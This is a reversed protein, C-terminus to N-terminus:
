KVTVQGVMGLLAHPDCQFYYTGPGFNLAIDSTQGPLQLLDTARPLNSKGANSDPLFNANHVGSVLTFRLVDGANAEFRAPDFRNAGQDDTLMKVEIVKGGPGPTLNTGTAPQQTTQTGGATTDAREGGGGCAAAGLMVLLGGAAILRDFTM